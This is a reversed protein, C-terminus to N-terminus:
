RDGRRRRLGLALAAMGALMLGTSSARNQPVSCGCGGDDEAESAPQPVVDPADWQADPGGFADPGTFGDEGADAATTADSGADHAADEAADQADEGADLEADPGADAAEAVCVDGECEYGQACDGSTECSTLCQTGSCLYPGCDTQQPAQCTGTGDCFAASQQQGNSCAAEACQVSTGPYMCSEPQSAECAGACAGTGGCAPRDGHPQGSIAVCQGEFGAVDCAKCQETCPADCCYGDACNGSACESASTCTQVVPPTTIWRLRVRQASVLPDSDFTEYAVVVAGNQGNVLKPVTEDSAEASITMGNPDSVVGASTIRAGYIDWGTGRADQWAAFYSDGSWVVSPLRQERAAQAIIIVSGNPAGDDALRVGVIDAGGAGSRQEEWVALFGSPGAAVVPNVQVVSTSSIVRPQADLVAGDSSRVRAGMIDQETGPNQGSFPVQEDWVVMFSGPGAAVAPHYQQRSGTAIAIGNAEMPTASGAAVRTGYVDNNAGNRYDNWVVLARTGDSAVAPFSQDNAANSLAVGNPNAVQGTSSVTTGYIDLGSADRADTWVVLYSSGNHAVAPAFQDGQASCITIGAPDLLEGTASFRAGILDRANGARTDSWVALFSNGDTAIAPGYQANAGRSVLVPSADIATGDSGRVRRARVDYNGASTDAWAVVYDTGNSALAPAHTLSGSATALALPSSDALSGNSSQLRAGRVESAEHNWAILVTSGAAVLAPSSQEGPATSVAIGLPDLTTSQGLAVRAVYIGPDTGERWDEWAIVYHSGAFAVKANQQAGALTTIGFGTPNYVSMDSSRVRAGYVDLTSNREDTWVVLAEADGMAISPRTQRGSANSIVIGSSDLVQGDSARVRAGYINDASNNRADQWAILYNTGDFAVAPYDQAGSAGCVVIPSSDLAAGTPSFRAALIDDGGSREAHWVVFFGSADAVVAPHNQWGAGTAIAIGRSDLLEGDQARIRAAYVNYDDHRFDSWVVVYESGNWAISPETQAGTAPGEVPAGTDKEPSVVPNLMAPYTSADLLEQGVHLEIAGASWRARIETANGLADVWQANSYRVGLGSNDDVFHHGGDTQGAYGLGQVPIRVVLDGAGEPRKSITWQHQVGEASNRLTEHVVGRVVEVAGDDAARVAGHQLRSAGASVVAPGFRLSAGQVTHWPRARPGDDRSLEYHYPTLQWSGDREVQVRYTAHGGAFHDNESRFAFHVRDIAESIRSAAMSATRTHAPPNQAGSAAERVEAEDAQQCGSVCTWAAMLATASALVARCHRPECQM